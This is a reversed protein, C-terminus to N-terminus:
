QTFTYRIIYGKGNGTVILTDGDHTKEVSLVPYQGHQAVYAQPSECEAEIIERMAHQEGGCPNISEILIEYENM